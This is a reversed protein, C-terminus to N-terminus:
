IKVRFLTHCLGNVTHVDRNRLPFDDSKDSFAAASLAHRRSGDHSKEFIRAFYGASADQEFSLIQCLKRLSLEPFDAAIVNRHDKLLRHRTQVRNQLHSTLNLLSEKNM